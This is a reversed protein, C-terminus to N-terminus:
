VLAQPSSINTHMLSFSSSLEIKSFMKHFEHLDYYNLNLCQYKNKILTLYLKTANTNRFDYVSTYRCSFSAIFSLNLLETNDINCFPNRSEICMSLLHKKIKEKQPQFHYVTFLITSPPLLAASPSPLFHWKAM